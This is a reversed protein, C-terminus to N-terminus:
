AVATWAPTPSAVTLPLELQEGYLLSRVPLWRNDARYGSVRQRPKGELSPFCELCFSMGVASEALAEVLAERSVRAFLDRLRGKGLWEDVFTVEVEQGVEVLVESEAQGDGLVGAIAYVTEGRRRRPEIGRIDLYIGNGNEEAVDLWVM